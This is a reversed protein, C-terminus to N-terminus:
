PVTSRSGARRSTPSTAATVTRMTAPRVSRWASTSAPASRRSCSSRRRRRCWWSRSPRRFASACRGPPCRTATSCSHRRGPGRRSRRRRRQITAPRRWSRAARSGALVGERDFADALGRVDSPALALSLSRSSGTAGLVPVDSRFGRRPRSAPCRSGGADRDRTDTARSRSRVRRPRRGQLRASVPGPSATTGAPLSWWRTSRVLAGQSRRRRPDTSSLPM